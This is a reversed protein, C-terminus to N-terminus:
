FNVVTQLGYIQNSNSFSQYNWNYFSPTTAHDYRIEGRLAVNTTLRYTSSLTLSSRNAGESPDYGPANPDGPGFGNYFDGLYTVAGGNDL